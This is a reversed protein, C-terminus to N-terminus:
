KMWWSIKEDPYLADYSTMPDTKEDPYLADYSIMLDTKKMQTFRMM